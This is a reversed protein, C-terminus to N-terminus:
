GRKQKVIKEQEVDEDALADFDERGAKLSRGESTEFQDAFTDYAKEVAQATDDTWDRSERISDLIGGQEHRLYELFDREFRLVDGVPLTDLKGTLGTWISVAQEEFPYPRFQPQKLLEMLRSGRDLQQRSAADLDSAFMAFAEM